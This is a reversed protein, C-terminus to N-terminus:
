KLALYNQLDEGYQTIKSYGLSYLLSFLDNKYKERLEKTIFFEENLLEFLIPPCNNRIITGAGGKIIELESGETDIKIFGINDFNYEDLTHAYVDLITNDLHGGDFYTIVDNTLRQTDINNDEVNAWGNYQVHKNKDSLYVNFIDVKDTIDKLLCNVHILASSKKNAEFAFVHSFYKGLHCTFEGYRAGIDIFRKTFDFYGQENNLIEIITNVNYGAKERAACWYATNYSDLIICDELEVVTNPYNYSYLKSM